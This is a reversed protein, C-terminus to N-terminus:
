KRCLVAGKKLGNKSSINVIKRLIKIEGTPSKEILNSKSILKITLGLVRSERIAVSSSTRASKKLIEIETKESISSKTKRNLTKKEM